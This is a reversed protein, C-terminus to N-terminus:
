CQSWPVTEIYEKKMYEVVIKELEAEKASKAKEFANNLKEEQEKKITEEDKVTLIGLLMVLVYLVVM